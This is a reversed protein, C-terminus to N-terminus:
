LQGEQGCGADTAQWWLVPNFLPCLNTAPKRDMEKLSAGLLVVFDRNSVYVYLM